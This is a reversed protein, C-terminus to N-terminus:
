VRRPGPVGREIVFSAQTHLVSDAKVPHATARFDCRLRQANLDILAYGREDSRAHLIDPNSSRMWQNLAESLGKSTISSGILESAIIPSSRDGPHLRLNAALHRHVDGGLVVVDPVRPQAIAAMLRERAAPFADWGDSYLLPGFPTGFGGPALQTTQGILRWASTSSALGEALWREQPWGLMSRDKAETATCRWLLRGRWPAHVGSLCLQAERWQRTDLLWLQALTGWQYSAYFAADPGVPGRTPSIPLHEFYAQYAMARRKLFEATSVDEDETNHIGDYDNRVEHDDWTMLWPHAAHCARLDPDQKYNAHHIRYLDLSYDQEVEVAHRRRRLRRHTPGEYVYDGVFLVFDLDAAAIERHVTFAGQEYHQCAALAFRLSGPDSGLAPATRTHGIPSDLGGATFRYHYTRASDLGDVEVHVSHARTPDTVVEGQQVIRTFRPDSAVQWVVAVAQAPMGGDPQLPRPALRTWIVVSNPRPEGSAVGLSFTDAPATWGRSASADVAPRDTKAFLTQWAMLAALQSAGQLFDRRHM